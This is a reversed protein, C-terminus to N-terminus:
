AGSLDDGVAVCVTLGVAIALAGGPSLGVFWRTVDDRLWAPRRTLRRVLDPAGDNLPDPPTALRGCIVLRCCLKFSLPLPFDLPQGCTRIRLARMRVPRSVGRMPHMGEGARRRAAM